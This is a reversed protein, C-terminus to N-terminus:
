KNNLDTEIIEKFKEGILEMGLDNPHLGDYLYMTATDNMISFEHYMDICKIDKIRAIEEFGKVLENMDKESRNEKSSYLPTFLYIKGNPNKEKLFDILLNLAGFTENPDQSDIKGLHTGVGIDNTGGFLTVIDANYFNIFKKEVIEQYISRHNRNSHQNHLRYTGGANGYSYISAGQKKLVEQYGTILGMNEVENGDLWTISDGIMLISKNELTEIEELIEETSTSSTTTETTTITASEKKKYFFQNYSVGLIIVSIIIIIIRNLNKSM